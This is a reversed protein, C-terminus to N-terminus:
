RVTFEVRRNLAKNAETTNPAAPMNEGYGTASLSSASVGLNVLYDFVAEARNESLTQNYEETYDDDAYGSIQVTLNNAIINESIADLISTYESQIAYENVVFYIPEIVWAADELDSCIHIRM